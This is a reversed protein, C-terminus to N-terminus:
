RKPYKGIDNEWIHKTMHQIMSLHMNPFTPNNSDLGTALLCIDSLEHISAEQEGFDQLCSYLIDYVAKNTLIGEDPSNNLSTEIAGWQKKSIPIRQHKLKNGITTRISGTLEKIDQNIAMRKMEEVLKNLEDISQLTNTTSNTLIDCFRDRTELLALIFVLNLEPFRANFNYTPDSLHTINLKEHGKHKDFFEKDHQHAIM